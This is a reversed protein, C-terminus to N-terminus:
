NMSSFGCKLIAWKELMHYNYMANMFCCLLPSFFHIYIKLICGKLQRNNYKQLLKWGTLAAVKTWFINGSLLFWSDDIFQKVSGYWSKRRDRPNEKLWSSLCLRRVKGTTTRCVELGQSVQFSHPLPPLMECVVPNLIVQRACLSDLMKSFKETSNSSFGWTLVERTLERPLTVWLRNLCRGATYRGAVPTDLYVRM